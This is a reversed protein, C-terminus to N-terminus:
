FEEWGDAAAVPDPRPAAGGQGLTKLATVPQHVPPRAPPTVSPMPRRAARVDAVPAPASRTRFRAVSEALRGADQTLADCAATAQEVMAANQQTM